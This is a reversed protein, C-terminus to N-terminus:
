NGCRRHSHFRWFNQTGQACKWQLTHTNYVLLRPPLMMEQLTWARRNVPQHQEDFEANYCHKASVIVWAGDARRIPIKFHQHPSRRFSFAAKEDGGTGLFGQEVSVARAAAITLLSNRYISHMIALNRAKDEESDQVICLADVWLYKMGLQRTVVIADQITWPLNESELKEHYESFNERTLMSNRSSGWCYSLCLYRGKLGETPALRLKPTVQILRVPLVQNKATGTCSAHKQCGALWEAIQEYAAVSHVDNRLPRAPVFSAALAEADAFIPFRCLTAVPRSQSHPERYSKSLEDRSKSM